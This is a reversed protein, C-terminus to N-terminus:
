IYVTYIQYLSLTSVVQKFDYVVLFSSYSKSVMLIRIKYNGLTILINEVYLLIRFQFSKKKRPFPHRRVRSAREHGRFMLQHHGRIVIVHFLTHPISLLFIHSRYVSHFNHSMPCMRVYTFFLFSVFCFVTSYRALSNM